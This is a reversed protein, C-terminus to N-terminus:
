TKEFFLTVALSVLSKEVTRLYHLVRDLEAADISITCEPMQKLVLREGRAAEAKKELGLLEDVTIQFAECIQLINSFGPDKTGEEWTSITAQSINIKQALEKQTLGQRKRFAKLIQGFKEQTLM